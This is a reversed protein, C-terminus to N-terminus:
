IIENHKMSQLPCDKCLPPKRCYHKGTSVLLAHYQNYLIASEPLCVMYLKQIRDYSWNNGIIGHRELIRRTYGDVVFIPKNGAYLLISDATEEGIGNVSLLKKRLTWLDAEFMRDMSGAYERDLFYLFAKLRKTKLNYYGSPKILAAVIDDSAKLLAEPSLLGHSKLQDIAREVNKWNTNQTLIAGVAIEFPTEGPWWDLNGFHGELVDYIKQLYEGIATSKDSGM